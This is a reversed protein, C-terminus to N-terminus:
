AFREEEVKRFTSFRDKCASEAELIPANSAEFM